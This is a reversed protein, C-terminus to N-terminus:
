QVVIRTTAMGKSTWVKLLYAGGPWQEVNLRDAPMGVNPRDEVQRGAADFVQLAKIIEGGANVVVQDCAPIPFAHVRLAAGGEQVSTVAAADLRYVGNDTAAYLNGSADRAMNFVLQDSVPDPVSHWSKGHDFSEYLNHKNTNGPEFCMFYVHGGGLNFMRSGSLTAYPFSVSLVEWTAGDDMSSLVRLGNSAFLSHDSAATAWTLDYAINSIQEWSQGHDATRYLGIAPDEMGAAGYVQALLRGQGDLGVLRVRLGDAPQFSTAAGSGDLASTRIVSQGGSMVMSVITGGDLLIFDAVAGEQVVWEAGGPQRHTFWEPKGSGQGFNVYEFDGRRAYNWSDGSPGYQVLDWNIGGDPSHFVAGGDNKVHFYLDSGIAQVGGTTCTRGALGVHQWQAMSATALMASIALAYERIM